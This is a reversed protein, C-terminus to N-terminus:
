EKTINIEYGHNKLLAQKKASDLDHAVMEACMEQASIEPVWGLKSKAKNPDGLM